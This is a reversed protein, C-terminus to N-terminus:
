FGKNILAKHMIELETFQLSLRTKTTVGNLTAGPYYSTFMGDATYDVDIKTLACTTIRNLYTNPQGNSYFQIDFTAPYIWYPGSTGSSIEPSGYYKLAQVINNAAIAENESRPTFFFDFQFGRFGMGQFLTEAHPNIAIRLPSLIAASLSSDDLASTFADASKLTDKIIQSGLDSWLGKGMQKISDLVSKNSSFQYEALSVGEVNRFIGLNKQEWAMEYTTRVSPPMYLSIAIPARTTNQSQNASIHAQSNQNLQSQGSSNNPNNSVAVAIPNNPTQTKSLLPNDNFTTDFSENIFITMWHGYLANGNGDTAGLDVPYTFDQFDYQNVSLPALAGSPSSGNAPIFGPPNTNNNPSLDQNVLGPTGLTTPNLSSNLFSGM